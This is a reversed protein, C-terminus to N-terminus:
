IYAKLPPKGLLGGGLGPWDGVDIAPQLRCRFLRQTPRIVNARRRKLEDGWWPNEPKASTDCLLPGLLDIVDDDRRASLGM